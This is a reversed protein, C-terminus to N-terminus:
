AFTTPRAIARTLAMFGVQLKDQALNGWRTNVAPYKCVEQILAEVAEGTLKVANILDIEVQSLERYGKIPPDGKPVKGIVENYFEYHQTSTIPVSILPGDDEPDAVLFYKPM